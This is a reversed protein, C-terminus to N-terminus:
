RRVRGADLVAAGAFNPTFPARMAGRASMAGEVSAQAAADAVVLLSGGGGAGTVKCATAGAALVEDCTADIDPTTVGDSLLRKITWSERIVDDIVDPTDDLVAQRAREALTRLTHLHGINDGGTRTREGVERLIAASDHRERLSFLMLRNAMWDQMHPGPDLREVVADDGRFTIANLGGFASAFQDQRGVPMALHHTEVRAAHAAIEGQTVPINCEACIAAILAVALASSSGLGTGPAIDRRMIRVTWAAQQDMERLAAEVYARTGPAAPMDGEFVQTAGGVNNSVEVGVHLGIAVSVVLGDFHDCYFPLDTGGGAFSVRLPAEARTTM